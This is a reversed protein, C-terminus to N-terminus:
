TTCKIRRAPPVVLVTVHAHHLVHDSVSGFIARKIAGLGRQGIEICWVDKERALKCITHGVSEASVVNYVECSVGKKACADQFKNTIDVSKTLEAQDLSDFLQEYAGVDYYVIPGVPPNERRTYVNVLSIKHSEKHMYKFYWDFARMSHKSEDVCVLMSNGHVDEGEEDLKFSMNAM